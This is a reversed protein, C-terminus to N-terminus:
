VYRRLRRIKVDIGKSLWTRSINSTKWLAM